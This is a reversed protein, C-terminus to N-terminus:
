KVSPILSLAKLDDDVFRLGIGAYFSQNGRNKALADNVGVTAYFYNFFNARAYVKLLPNEGLRGFDFIESGIKVQDKFLLFDAALGGKNEFIGLRLGVNVLRKYYQLSFKLASQDNTVEESVSEVGGVTTRTVVKKTTGQADVVIQALYGSDERPMVSLGAYTKTEKPKVNYETTLDVITQTRAAKDVLSNVSRLARNLEAVTTPDNVLKGITGEGKDIKSTIKEVNELSKNTNGVAEALRKIDNRTQKEDFGDMIKELKQSVRSLSGIMLKADKRNESIVSNMNGTLRETNMLTRSVPTNQNGTGEVLNRLNGSIAKLDQSVDSMQRALDDMTAPSNVAQIFAGEKLNTKKAATAAAKKKKLQESSENSPSLSASNEATPNVAPPSPPPGSINPAEDSSGQALASPLFIQLWAGDGNENKINKDEGPPFIQSGKGSETPIIVELYKDGLIGLPRPIVQANGPIDVGDNILMRIKAKGNELQIEKIVGIDIGAMKVKSNKFVGTADDLYTVLTTGKRFIPTDTIRFSFAAIVVLAAFIFIGVQLERTFGKSPERM